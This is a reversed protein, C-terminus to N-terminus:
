QPRMGIEQAIRRWRAVDERMREALAQPTMADSTSFGFDRVRQLFEPDKLVKDVEPNLRRVVETPIGAPGVLAFWGEVILGPYTEAITPTDPLGAFRKSSSVAVIRAKGAQVFPEVSPLSILLIQVRGSLFDRVAEPNQRYPIRHIDIGATKNIWQALVDSIGITTGYSLADPRAKAVSVLQGFTKVPLDPHVVVVFPASDVINAIPTFARDADYPLSKLRFRNAVLADNTGLYLTYGDPPAQSALEAGIVSEGGPRNEVFFQQGLSRSLRDAVIRMVIDPSGGASNSLIIKVPRTPYDQATALNCGLWAWLMLCSFLFRLSLM